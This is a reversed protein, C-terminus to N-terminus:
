RAKGAAAAIAEVEALVQELTPMETPESANALAVGDAIVDSSWSRMVVAGARLTVAEYGRWGQGKCYHQRVWTVAGGTKDTVCVTSVGEECYPSSRVQCSRTENGGQENHQSTWAQGVRVPNLLEYKLEYTETSRQEPVVMAFHGVGKDDLCYYTISVFEDSGDPDEINERALVQGKCREALSSDPHSKSERSDKVEAAGENWRQHDKFTVRTTEVWLDEIRYSPGEETKKKSCTQLLPLLLLLVLVQWTVSQRM